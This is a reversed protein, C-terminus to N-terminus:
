AAPNTPVDPWDEFSTPGSQKPRKLLLVVGALAAGFLLIVTLKFLAKM